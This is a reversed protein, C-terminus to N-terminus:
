FRGTVALGTMEPGVTPAVATVADGGAPAALFWLAAAGGIAVGGAVFAVTSINGARRADAALDVGTRDCELAANCRDEADSWKSQASLGFVSGAIMGVAGAAAVGIAAKRGTTWSAPVGDRTELEGDEGDDDGDDEDRAPDPAPTLAPVAVVIRAGPPGAAVREQWPRHGPARAAVSHEGPDVPFRQGWLAPARLEGDWIIELGPPAAAVEIVVYSLQRELAAARETAIQARREDSQRRALNVASNYAGWASATRGLERYCDGLSLRAGVSPSARDSARLKDAAGEWDRSEMLRRGDNFLAQATAEDGGQAAAPGEGLVTGAVLAVLAAVWVGNGPGWRPGCRRGRVM